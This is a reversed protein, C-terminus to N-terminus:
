SLRTIYAGSTGLKEFRYKKGDAMEVEWTAQPLSEFSPNGDLELSREQGVRMKTRNSFVLVKVREVVETAERAERETKVQAATKVMRHFPGPFLDVIDQAFSTVEGMVALRKLQIDPTSGGYSAWNTSVHLEYKRWMNGESDEFLGSYREDFTVYLSASARYTETDRQWEISVFSRAEANLLMHELMKRDQVRLGEPAKDLIFQVIAKVTSDRNDILAEPVTNTTEM